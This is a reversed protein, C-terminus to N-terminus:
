TILAFHAKLDEQHVKIFGRHNIHSLHGRLLWLLSKPVLDYLFLVNEDKPNKDAPSNYTQKEIVPLHICKTFLADRGSQDKAAHICLQMHASLIARINTQVWRHDSRAWLHEVAHTHTHMSTTTKKKRKRFCRTWLCCRHRPHTHLVPAVPSCVRPRTFTSCEPLDAGRCGRWLQTVFCKEGKGRRVASCHSVCPWSGSCSSM